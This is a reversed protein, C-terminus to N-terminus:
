FEERRREGVRDKKPPLAPSSLSFTEGSPLRQSASTESEEAGKRKKWPLPSPSLFFGRSSFGSAELIEEGSSPKNSAERPGCRLLERKRKEDKSPNSFLQATSNRAM